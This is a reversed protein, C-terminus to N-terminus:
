NGFSYTLGLGTSFQNESGAKVLPSDAAPGTLRKYGGFLTAGVSETISYTFSSSAGVDKIGSDADYTDYQHRSRRSQKESIGFFTDNYTSNAFTTYLQNNWRLSEMLQLSHGINAQVQLGEVDGTGQTIRVGVRFPKPTWAAFASLTLGSDIDGLGTLLDSNNEERGMDLGAAVGMNWEPSKVIYMGLGKTSSLFFRDMIEAEIIPRARVKYKDSGEFEPMLGGGIGVQVSWPIEENSSYEQAALANPSLSAYLCFCIVSCLCTHFATTIARHLRQPTFPM